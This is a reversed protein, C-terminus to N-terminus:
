RVLKTNIGDRTNKNAIVMENDDMPRAKVSIKIRARKFFFRREEV